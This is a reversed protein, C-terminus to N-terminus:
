LSADPQGSVHASRRHHYRLGHAAAKRPHAQVRFTKELGLLNLSIVPVYGYGAKELAKRILFIYNSARCGGGTQFMILAVKHPDYNGSQLADIFQGIVLVAPYCADNHCYKIGTDPIRHGGTKLLEMNYGYNRMVQMIMEFHMPLMNPVLITYDRKMDRTFEVYEM